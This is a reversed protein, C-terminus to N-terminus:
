SKFTSSNGIGMLCCVISITLYILANTGVLVENAIIGGICYQWRQMLEEKKTNSGKYYNRRQLLEEKTTYRM